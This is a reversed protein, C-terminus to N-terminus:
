DNHLVEDKILSNETYKPYKTYVYYLLQKIPIETIKRKFQKLIDMQESSINKILEQEIFGSGKDTIRYEWFNNESKYEDEDEYCEDIFEKEIINDMGSMEDAVAVSLDKVNIFGIGSFLEIQDYLDKSFPGYNYAFFDPMKESELGKKKLIPTIQENFLFMMKMLRVSGKIPQKDNLYLLLLLYDSGLLKSSMADGM